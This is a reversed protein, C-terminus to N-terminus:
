FSSEYDNCPMAQMNIVLFTLNTQLLNFKYSENYLLVFQIQFKSIDLISSVTSQLFEFYPHIVSWEKTYAWKVNM